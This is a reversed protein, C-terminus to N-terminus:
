RAGLLWGGVGRLYSVRNAGEAPLMPALIDALEQQRDDSIQNYRQTFGIIAIQDERDLAIPPPQPQYKPLGRQPLGRPDKEKRRYVVLTGAVLDGLRQFNKSLIISVTGFMFFAPLMDAFRVLNRIISTGWTIPTLDDNVVAINMIKKGPTQGRWLVEFFVPYFWEMLFACISLLGLGALGGLALVIWLGLNIVFRILFDLLYAFGRPGIGAPTAQLDISEPTEVALQTQVIV